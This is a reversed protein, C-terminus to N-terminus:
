KLYKKCAWAIKSNNNKNKSSIVQIKFCGYKNTPTLQKVKDGYYVIGLKKNFTSNNLKLSKVWVKYTKNIQKINKYYDKAVTKYKELSTTKWEMYYECTWAIKWNNRVDKSSIVKVKFCGYKNTNTLQELKDGKYATYLRKTFYADNLFVSKVAVKQINKKNINIKEWDVISDVKKILDEDVVWTNTENLTDKDDSDFSFFDKIDQIFSWTNSVKETTDEIESNELKVDDIKEIKLEVEEIEKIEDELDIDEININSVLNNTENNSEVTKKTELTFFDRVSQIFTGTNSDTIAEWSIIKMSTENSVIKIEEEIVSDTNVLNIVTWTNTELDNTKINNQSSILYLMFVFFIILLIWGLNRIIFKM